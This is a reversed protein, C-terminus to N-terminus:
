YLEGANFTTGPLEALEKIVLSRNREDSLAIVAEEEDLDALFDFSERVANSMERVTPKPVALAGIDELDFENEDRMRLWREPDFTSGQLAPRWYVDGAHMGNTDVWIKLVALRRILARDLKAAVTANSMIWRLDYMDRATTTRNLRAIKEAINEELRTTTIKPLEFGYQVHVPMPVWGRCVPKLWPMPAFDLKSSLTANRIFPSEFVISWRGRRESVDYRFPGITLGDAEMVFLEGSGGEIEAFDLDLSFRGEKGAYLKRIATGGKIALGDLLGEDQMHALLLDQAVDVVAAEKGQAGAGRPTHRAIHGPQINM